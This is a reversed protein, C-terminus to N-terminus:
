LQYCGLKNDSSGIVQVTNKDVRLEKVSQAVRPIDVKNVVKNALKVSQAIGASDINSM